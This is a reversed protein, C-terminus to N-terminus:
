NGLASSNAPPQYPTNKPRLPKAPETDWALSFSSGGGPAHHVKVSTVGEKTHDM